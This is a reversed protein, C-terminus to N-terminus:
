EAAPKKRSEALELAEIDRIVEELPIGVGDFDRMREEAIKLDQWDGVWEAIADFAIDEVPKGTEKSMEALLKELKPHLDLTLM